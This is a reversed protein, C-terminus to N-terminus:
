LSKEGRRRRRREERRRREGEVRLRTPHRVGDSLDVTRSDQDCNPKNIAQRETPPYGYRSDRRVLISLLQEGDNRCDFHSSWRAMKPNPRGVCSCTFASRPAALPWASRGCAAHLAITSSHFSDCVGRSRSGLTMRADPGVFPGPPACAAESLTRVLGGEDTSLERDQSTTPVGMKDPGRTVDGSSEVSWHTARNRKSAASGYM